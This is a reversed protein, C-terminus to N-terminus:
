SDAGADRSSQSPATGAIIEQVRLSQRRPMDLLREVIEHAPHAFLESPRDIQLIRGRDMVAIRDALLLAETVDHTVLLITLDLQERMAILEQQLSDRTVPDVAGFPEDMLLLKAEAALARAVGVRQQQGGSLEAPRRGRTEAPDLGVRELLEGVRSQIRDEDWGLLRPTAAINDAVTWHPFLGIGQFVYGIGRRLQVPDIDQTNHGDVYIEGASPMVLRNIMKLTTTKGCGSSGLLVVIEGDAVELSLRDVASTIEPERGPSHAVGAPYTKSVERISIM